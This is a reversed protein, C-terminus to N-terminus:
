VPSRVPHLIRRNKNVGAWPHLHYCDPLGQVPPSTLLFFELALHGAPRVTKKLCNELIM